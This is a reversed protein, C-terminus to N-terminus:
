LTKGRVTSLAEPRLIATVHDILAVRRNRLAEVSFPDHRGIARAVPTSVFYFVTMGIISLITNMPDVPRVERRRIGDQLITMLAEFLKRFYKDALYQIHPSKGSGARMMEGQMLRSYSPNEAIYDFHTVAYLVLKELANGHSGLVAREREFLGAFVQELTARYLGEKHEFYYYLLAKNVGATEAISDTRSGAIGQSAFEALAAKLIAQRSEEPRGRSGARSAKRVQTTKGHHKIM